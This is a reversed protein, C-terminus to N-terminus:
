SACCLTHARTAQNGKRLLL